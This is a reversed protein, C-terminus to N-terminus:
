NMELSSAGRGTLDKKIIERQKSLRPLARWQSDSRFLQSWHSTYKKAGPIACTKSRGGHQRGVKLGIFSVLLEEVTGQYLEPPAPPWLSLDQASQTFM